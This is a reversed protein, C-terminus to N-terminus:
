RATSPLCIRPWIKRRTIPVAKGKLLDVLSFNAVQSLWSYSSSEHNEEVWQFIGLAVQYKNAMNVKGRLIYVDNITTPIHGLFMHNIKTAPILFREASPDTGPDDFYAIALNVQEIVRAAVEQPNAHNWDIWGCKCSYTYRDNKIGDPDPRRGSHDTHLVPDSFGYQYQHFSYPRAPDGTYPDVTTFKGQNTSYWRARLNVLGAGVDQVEGTFGFTPVSGSEPTGWPDYNVIGLPTGADTVTRRVSGLADATYWTKV